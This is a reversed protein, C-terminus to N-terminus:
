PITQHWKCVLSSCYVHCLANFISFFLAIIGDFLHMFIIYSTYFSGVGGEFESIQQPSIIRLFNYYQKKSNQLCHPHHPVKINSAHFLLCLFHHTRLLLQLENRLPEMYLIPNSTTIQRNIHQIYATKLCFSLQIDFDCLNSFFQRFSIKKWFM